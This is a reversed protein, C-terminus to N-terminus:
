GTRRFLALSRADITTRTHAEVSEGENFADATDLLRLWRAGWAKAPATFELPEHHANFCILFSDDVVREGRADPSPITEGNLFVGIAKGFGSTWDEAKM